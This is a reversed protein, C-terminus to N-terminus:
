YISIRYFHSEIVEKKRCNDDDYHGKGSRVKRGLTRHLKLFRISLYTNGITFYLDYLIKVYSNKELKEFFATPFVIESRKKSVLYLEAKSAIM